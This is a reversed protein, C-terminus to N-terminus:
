EAVFNDNLSWIELPKHEVRVRQGALLDFGNLELPEAEACMLWIDKAFRDSEVWYGGGEAPEVTISAPELAIEKVPVDWYRRRAVAGNEGRWEVDLYTGSQCPNSFVMPTVDLQFLPWDMANSLVTDGELSVLDLRLLGPSDPAVGRLELRKDDLPWVDIMAPAFADRLAYHLPKWRGGADVSSWSAMPSCDNLQWVLSGGCREPHLRHARAGLSVGDSQVLRTLASWHKFSLEQVRGARREDFHTQAIYADLIDFGRAHKEHAAVAGDARYMTFPHPVALAWTAPEPFSQCGFESMFRPIRFRLTDFPLGDHWVGWDHADGSRQFNPDGRGLTPSSPHYHSGSYAAVAAPLVGHFITDYAAQLQDIEADDLGDKWGWRAWGEAVENNGCWLAVCPHARLRRVQYQVEARVNEVFGADGPVMACAFMFDQWILVGREDCAELLAESAYRGGGWVRLMNMHAAVADEVLRQEQESTILALRPDAPVLNAGAAFIRQGNLIFDFKSGHEDMATDLEVTRIGVMDTAGHWDGDQVAVELRYMPQEGRDHTWWLEPKDAAWSKVVEGRGIGQGDDVRAGDPGLLRWSFPSRKDVNLTFRVLGNARVPRGDVWEIRSTELGLGDVRQRAGIRLAGVSMDKLVPGWDWGFQFQPLRHMARAEGLVGEGQAPEFRIRLSNGVPHLLSDVKWRHPMFAGSTEGLVVGNLEVHAYPMVEDLVLEWGSWTGKPDRKGSGHLAFRDSEFTWNREGAWQVLAEGNGSVFSPIEGAQELAGYLSGPLTGRVEIAPSKCVWRGELVRGTRRGGGRDTMEGGHETFMLFDPTDRDSSGCGSSCLSLCIGSSVAFLVVFFRM